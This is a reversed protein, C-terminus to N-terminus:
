ILGSCISAAFSVLAGFARVPGETRNVIDMWHGEGTRVGEAFLSVHLHM